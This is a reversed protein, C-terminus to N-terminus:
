EGWIYAQPHIVAKFTFISLITYNGYLRRDGQRGWVKTQFYSTYKFIIKTVM